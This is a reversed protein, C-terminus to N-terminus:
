GGSYSHDPPKFQLIGSNIFRFAKATYPSEAKNNERRRKTTGSGLFPAATAIVMNNSM